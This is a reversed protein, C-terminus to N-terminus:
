GAAARSAEPVGPSRVGRTRHAGAGRSSMPLRRLAWRLMPPMAMTTVVAMAVIATYLRQSLAGMSLGISAVMVETSGRANMGCGVAFSEAYSLGGLRGGLFAGSFKGISALAILVVTLVLLDPRALARLDTSLGATAFFVPMFLAVILGRLQADIHQTLIPSQGVLVGAIFAGLVFHM